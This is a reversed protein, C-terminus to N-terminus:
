IGREVNSMGCEVNWMVWLEVNLMIVDILSHPSVVYVVPMPMSEPVPGIEPRALCCGLSCM